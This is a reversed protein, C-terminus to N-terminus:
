ELSLRVIRVVMVLLTPILIVFLLLLVGLASSAGNVSCYLLYSFDIMIVSKAFLIMALGMSEIREQTVENEVHPLNWWQPKSQVITLFASLVLQVAPLILLEPKSGWKDAQGLANFHTPIKDPLDGWLFLLYLLAFTCASAGISELIIHNPKYRTM